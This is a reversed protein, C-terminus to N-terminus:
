KEEKIRLHAERPTLQAYFLFVVRSRYLASSFIIQCAFSFISLITLEGSLIDMKSNHKLEEHTCKLM